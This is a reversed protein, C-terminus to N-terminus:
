RRGGPGSRPWLGGDPGVGRGLRGPRLSPLRPPRHWRAALHAWPDGDRVRPAWVGALTCAAHPPRRNCERRNARSPARNAWFPAPSMRRPPWASPLRRPRPAPGDQLCRSGLASSGAQWQGSPTFVELGVRQEGCQPQAATPGAKRRPGPSGQSLQRQQAVPRVHLTEIPDPRRPHPPLPRDTPLHAGAKSLRSAPWGRGWDGPGRPSVGARLGLPGDEPVQLPGAPGCGAQRDGAGAEPAPLWSM